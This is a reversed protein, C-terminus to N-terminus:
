RKRQQVLDETVHSDRLVPKQMSLLAVAAGNQLTMGEVRIVRQNEEAM